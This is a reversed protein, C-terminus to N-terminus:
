FSLQGGNMSNFGYEDMQPNFMQSFNQGTQEMPKNFGGSMEKGSIGIGGQGLGPQLPMQTQGGMGRSNTLSEMGSAGFYEPTDPMGAGYSGGSTTLPTQSQTPMQFNSTPVSTRSGGQSGGTFLRGLANMFDSSNGQIFPSAQQGIAPAASPIINMLNAGEKGIIKGGIGSGVGWANMTGFDGMTSAAGGASSTAGAGGGFLNGFADGALNTLMYIALPLLQQYSNEFWNGSSQNDRARKEATQEPTLYTPSSTFPATINKVASKFLKSLWSHRIGHEDEHTGEREFLHNLEHDLTDRMFENEMGARIYVTNKKKDAFGLNDDGVNEYRWDIDKANRMEDATLFKIKIDSKM